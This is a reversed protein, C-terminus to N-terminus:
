PRPRYELRASRGPLSRPRLREGPLTRLWRWGPLVPPSLRHLQELTGALPRAVVRVGGRGRGQAGVDLGCLAAVLLRRGAHARGHVTGELETGRAQAARNARALRAHVERDDDARGGAQALDNLAVCGARGRQNNAAIGAVPGGLESGGRAADGRGGSHANEGQRLGVRGRECGERHQVEVRVRADHHGGGVIRGRVVTVLDVQAAGDRLAVPTADLDDRGEVRLDRRGDLGHRGRVLDRHVVVKDLGHIRALFVHGACGGQGRALCRRTLVQADDQGGHVAHASRDGRADQSLSTEGVDGEHRRLCIGVRIERGHGEGVGFLGAGEVHCDLLCALLPGVEDDRDVGVRVAACERHGVGGQLLSPTREAAVLDTREQTLEQSRAAQRARERVRDHRRAQERADGPSVAEVMVRRERAKLPNGPGGPKPEAVLLGDTKAGVGGVHAVLVANRRRDDGGGQHGRELSLPATHPVLQLAQCPQVAQM